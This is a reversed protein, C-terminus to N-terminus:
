LDLVTGESAVTVEVASAGFRSALRDLAEDTRDPQHHFLVVQGVGARHGLEVAYDAAAHGFSAQAALEEPFLHADHVLVDAGNALALAAAHYEGWGDPGAGLVTPCHDPIYAVACTGDSVRFGFTRGGKHPVERIEVSFGSGGVRSRDIGLPDVPEVDLHGPNLTAFTWEGRLQRPRIPFQPPSMGRALVEEAESGDQQDPVLVRVRSDDRDGGGFFPLGQFHDWHLHTLLITGAFPKGGLLETVRRIGTGADLLLTPLPVEGESPGGLALALCSTNGGYRVFDAGPAPTSGRVGCLHIRV